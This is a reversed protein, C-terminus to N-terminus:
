EKDELTEAKKLGDLYDIQKYSRDISLQLDSILAKNQRILEEYAEVRREARHILKYLIDQSGYEHQIQKDLREIAHVPCALSLCMFLLLLTFLIKKVM